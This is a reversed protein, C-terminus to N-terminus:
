DERIVDVFDEFDDFDSNVFEYLVPEKFEFRNTELLYNHLPSKKLGEEISRIGQRSYSAVIMQGFDSVYYIGYVDDNLRYERKHVHDNNKNFALYLKGNPHITVMARETAEVMLDDFNVPDFVIEYLTVFEPRALLMGAEQPSISLTATRKYEEIQLDSIELETFLLDYKGNEEVLSECSFRNGGGQRLRKISNKCLTSPAYEPFLDLEFGGCSLYEAATFDRSFCRMLFYNIVQYGSELPGCMKDMVVQTLAERNDLEKKLIFDYEEKKGPLDLSFTRNAEAFLQVLLCAEEELLDVKSGGLGGILTQEVIALETVNNGYISKYTEFGYEEADYYYYQHMSTFGDRTELEWNIYLGVVGMLRTNTVFASLFRRDQVPSPASLGGVIVKLDSKKL